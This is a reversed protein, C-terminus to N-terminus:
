YSRRSSTACVACQARVHSDVVVRAIVRGNETNAERTRARETETVRGSRDVKIPLWSQLTGDCRVFSRGFIGM